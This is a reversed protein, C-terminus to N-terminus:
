VYKIDFKLFDLLIMRLLMIYKRRRVMNSEECIEREFDERDLIFIHRLTVREIGFETTKKKEIGACFPDRGM